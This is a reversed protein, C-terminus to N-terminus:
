FRFNGSEPESKPESEPESKPESSPVNASKSEPETFSICKEQVLHM